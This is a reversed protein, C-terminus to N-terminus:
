ASFFPSTSADAGLLVSKFQAACSGPGHSHGQWSEWLIEQEQQPCFISTQFWNRHLVMLLHCIQFSNMLFTAKERVFHVEKSSSFRKRWIGPGPAPGMPMRDGPIARQASIQRYGQAFVEPQQGPGCGTHRMLGRSGPSMM